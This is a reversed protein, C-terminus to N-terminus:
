TEVGKIHNRRLKSRWQPQATGVRESRSKGSNGGFSKDATQM